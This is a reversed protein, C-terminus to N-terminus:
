PNAVEVSVLVGRVVLRTRYRDNIEDYGECTILTLWDYEEHRLVSLDHPRVRRVQRVEYIHRRGGVILSMRDGWALERLRYFPGPTGDSLYVHGTLATNGPLTPYATGELYGAGGALWTLDWGEEDTPVGVVPVEMQISDIKLRLDDLDVYPAEAPEPEIETVRNPAFGTAPLAPIRVTASAGVGYVDIPSGPDYLRETSLGNHTSQPSSVDGPLSSWELFAENSVSGGPSLGTLRAQYEVESESGEPFSSWEIRLTPAGGDELVDPELGVSNWVLTGAEYVLQPPLDDELVLDFSDLDSSDAHEIRLRFTVVSGNMAVRPEVTKSLSLTPEALSVSSASASLGEGIWNATAANDLSTGRVNESSDLAVARYRVTLTQDEGSDNSLDGFGFRVRRGPDAPNTSGAPATEVVPADCIASFTGATASMDAPSSPSISECDLFALGRELTDEITLSGMTGPPVTLVLQYTLIEGIAVTNGASFSQNTGALAKTLDVNADTAVNDTDTDKNNGPNTDDGNSGDDAVSATNSIQEVGVALPSAVRLQFTLIASDGANLAGLDYTCTSGPDFDPSCSWGASSGAPQFTTHPPVTDTVVVGTADQNGLNEVVITYTLDVGDSIVSLGDDKSIALDPAAEVPTTDNDTNDDPTPEPGDSGDDTVTAENDIQELGAPAPDVVTVAFDVSDSAGAAVVGITLTCSSGASIDPACSWGATSSGGNFTTNAPVTETIQVGTAGANGVNQYTLSYVVVSGPVATAGGDDKGLVLDIGTVQVQESTTARYDDVGGEGSREEDDEGAISTWRMEPVNLFTDGVNVAPANGVTVDYTFSTSVAALTLEPITFIITPDGTDNVQSPPLSTGQYALGLPITDEITIDHADATSGPAHAVTLTYTITEGLAPTDDDAIKTITLEPEVVEVEASASATDTGFDIEVVNVLGDGNQNEGDNEVLAVVEVVIRDADSVVGDPENHLNGFNFVVRDDFGDGDRDSVAGPDGVSLGSGSINAGIAVVQSSAVSLIGEDPPVVPLDDSITLPGDGEPLTATVTFTVQEGVVLDTLSANLQGTETAAESTGTVSKTIAPDALEVDLTVADAFDNLAGGPGDEGTREGTVSGAAGPTSSGTPNSTTGSTGPLSTYTLAASNSLVDGFPVTDIVTASVTVTVGDGPNLRSITVDVDLGSSNDTVTAYGPATVVVSPGTLNSDLTDTLRLDFAAAANGGSATNTFTLEYVVPDGADAPTTTTMKALDNILPEAIRVRVPSSTAVVTGDIRVRFRNGRTTTSAAGTSNNFAQNGAMNEILANFEVVVYEEDEDRDDNTLTGLKFYVDTGSGYTDNDSGASASVADDPLVSTPTISAINSENGTAQPGTGLTSSSIGGDNAVFAVMATNDNLFRLGGPLLDRLQFETAMGEALRFTLRYRVIEGLTVREIGSVNGTHAESTSIISKQPASFVTVVATGITTYDNEGGGVDGTDGTREVSLGNNSTQPTGVDGPLSTWQVEGTNEIDQGPSVTSDLTVQFQLESTEDTALSPWTARLPGSDDLSDPVEGATNTLSNPVYTMGMPIADVLELEFADADSTTTHSVALTFTITDGADGATPIATKEVQLEPEVIVVEDASASVSVTGDNASWSWVADNTRTETRDNGSSNLVVVTTEITILEDTSNDEDTNTLTGFDLTLQRGDAAAGGGIASIVAADRIDTFTGESSSLPASGTVSDVSVFALGLELSDAFEVDQAQGEPVTIEVTYSVQEGIAVNAGITHGQNTPGLTKVIDPADITVTAADTLDADDGTFDEGGEQNAYNSVTATNPIEQGPPVNDSIQLDYTIVVINLGGTDSYGQCAGEEPGPDVLEIGPGLLLDNLDATTTTGPEVIDIPTGDGRTVSLNGGGSPIEFGAPLEDQLQIDFAGDPSSGQNEIVIAFSVLDGADVEGLDSDVPNSSLGASDIVGSWRPNASGPDSFAVPGTTDPDFDGAAGPSFAITGKTMALFPEQIQVQVISDADQDGANTSGESARAQNTLFLGDAFPEDTVTVTFLLEVVTAASGLDDFDGYTFTVSNDASPGSTSLAPVLSSKAFFTDAPGFTATGAPPISGAISDDFVTVESADFIPLPLYDVFTLDEIDSTPLTYHLRYTVTDGPAVQPPSSFSTSGNVAYITKTLTGRQISLSAGSDDEEVDFVDGISGNDRVTGAIDVENVLEDGQDVSPDGSPYTDTFADQVVTRFRITGTAEVEDPAIARGGQLIGDAGGLRDIAGSVDFTLTTSGDTAPDPDNGIMSTDVTLDTGVVFTGAVTGNRDTASLTPAFSAEYQQGDSFTDTAVLDGFTFFDSVQFALTYELTDGPSLGSAGVDGVISVSKQIALSRDNLTHEPGVGDAVVNDTGDPDGPDLPDWDGIARAQNQSVTDDGSTPNIVAAGNADFEPVFFNVTITADAGPGGTLSGYNVRLRNNPPNAAAGVTPEEVITGSAGASLYALNNALDDVVDLDTVTQGTAVDVSITYSRPYNPGTATENEPADSSKSLTLISPTVTASPWGTGDDTTPDVIVPDCCWDDLPTTGYQFGGRARLILPTGLDAESSLNASVTVELPPQGPTHSGFPLLLVVLKDGAEGCVPLPDGITDQAYPHDVCGTTGPGAGDADPFTQVDSTLSVGLYSAGVFDIGDADVGGTGDTGNVPFILDIFPGYGTDSGANDFTVTFNFSDGIFVSGPASISVSPTAAGLPRASAGLPGLITSLLLISGVAMKLLYASVPPPSRGPSGEARSPQDPLARQSAPAM